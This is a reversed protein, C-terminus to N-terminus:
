GAGVIRLAITSMQDVLRNREDPTAPNAWTWMFSLMGTIARASTLPDEATFEGREVGETVLEAVRDDVEARKRLIRKRDDERLSRTEGAYVALYSGHDLVIETLQRSFEDLRQTPSTTSGPRDDIASLTLEAGSTCIAELIASKDKFQYYVFQKSTGLADAISDVSTGHFGNELFLDVAADLIQRKKLEAIEERVSTSRKRPPTPM